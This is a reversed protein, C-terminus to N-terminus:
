FLEQSVLLAWDVPGRHKSFGALDFYGSKEM